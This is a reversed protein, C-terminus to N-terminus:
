MPNPDKAALSPAAATGLSASLSSEMENQVRDGAEWTKGKRVCYSLYSFYRLLSGLIRYSTCCDVACCLVSTSSWTWDRLSAGQVRDWIEWEKAKRRSSSNAILWVCRACVGKMWKRGHRGPSPQQAVSGKAKKRERKEKKGKRKSTKRQGERGRGDAPLKQSKKKKKKKMVKMVKM